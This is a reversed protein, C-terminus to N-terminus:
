RFLLYKRTSFNVSSVLVTSILKSALYHFNAAETFFKICYHNLGLGAVGLLLFLSAELRISKFTRRSFVWTINLIYSAAAGLLFAIAASTLYYVKFVETYLVLVSYDVFYAFAGALAYRFLQISLEDASDKFLRGVM